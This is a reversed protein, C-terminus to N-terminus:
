LSGHCQSYRGSLALRTRPLVTPVVFCPWGIEGDPGNRMRYVLRTMGDYLSSFLVSRDVSQESNMGLASRPRLSISKNTNKWPSSLQLGLCLKSGSLTM